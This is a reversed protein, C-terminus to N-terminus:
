LIVEPTLQRLVNLLSPLGTAKQTAEPCEPPQAAWHGETSTWTGTEMLSGLRRRFTEWPFKRAGKRLVGLFWTQNVKSM